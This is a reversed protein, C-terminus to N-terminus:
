SSNDPSREDKDGIVYDGAKMADELVLKLIEGICKNFRISGHPDDDLYDVVDYDFSISEDDENLKISDYSYVVGSYFGGELKIYWQDQDLDKEVFSWKYYDKETNM